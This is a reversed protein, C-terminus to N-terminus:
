KLFHLILKGILGSRVDFTLIDSGNVIRLVYCIIFASGAIAWFIIFPKKPLKEEYLMSIVAFPAIIFMPHYHLAARFDLRLVSVWARSMGCAPCSLGTFLKILCGLDFVYLIGILAAMLVLVFLRDKNKM